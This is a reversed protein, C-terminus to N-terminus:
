AARRRRLMLSGMALVCLGASVPEPVPVTEVTLEIDALELGNASNTGGGFWDIKITDGADAATFLGSHSNFEWINDNANITVTTAALITTADTMNTITITPAPGTASRTGAFFTLLDSGAILRDSLLITATLTAAGSDDNVEIGGPITINATGGNQDHDYTSNM